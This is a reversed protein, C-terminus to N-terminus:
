GDRPLLDHNHGSTGKIRLVVDRAVVSATGAVFMGFVILMPGFWYIAGAGITCGILPWPFIRSFYVDLTKTLHAHLVIGITFGMATVIPALLWLLAKLISSDGKSALLFAGMWAFYFVGACFLSTIVRLVTEGPHWRGVM